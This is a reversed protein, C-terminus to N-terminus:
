LRLRATILYTRQGDDRSFAADPHIAVALPAAALPLESTYVVAPDPSAPRDFKQDGTPRLATVATQQQTPGVDCCSETGTVLMAPRDSTGCRGEDPCCDSVAAAMACAVAVPVTGTLSLLVIALSALRRLMGATYTGGYARFLNPARLTM